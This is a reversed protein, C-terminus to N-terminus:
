RSAHLDKQFYGLAFRRVYFHSRVAEESISGAFRPGNLWAFAARYRDLHKRLGIWMNLAIEKDMSPNANLSATIQAATYQLLFGYKAKLSASHRILDKVTLPMLGYAGGARTGKHIGKLIVKHEKYVGGSSENQSIASLEASYDQGYATNICFIAMIASLAISRM